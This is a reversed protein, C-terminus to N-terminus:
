DCCCNEVFQGCEAHWERLHDMPQHGSKLNFNGTDCGECIYARCGFCFNDGSTTKDCKICPGPPQKDSM